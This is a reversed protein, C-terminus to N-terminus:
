GCSVIVEVCRPLFTIGDFVVAGMTPQMAFNYTLLLVDISGYKIAEDITSKPVKIGANRASRMAMIQCITVSAVCCTSAFVVM